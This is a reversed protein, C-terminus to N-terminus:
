FVHPKVRRQRFWTCASGPFIFGSSPCRRPMYKGPAAAGPMSTGDQHALEQNDKRAASLVLRHTKLSTWRGYLGVISIDTRRRRIKGLKVINSTEGNIALNENKLRMRLCYNVSDAYYSSFPRHLHRADTQRDWRDVAAAPHPANAASSCYLGEFQLIV